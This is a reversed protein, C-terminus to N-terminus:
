NAGNSKEKLLNKIFHGFVDPPMGTIMSEIPKKPGRVLTAMAELTNDRSKELEEIDQNHLKVLREALARPMGVSVPESDVNSQGGDFLINCHVSIDEIKWKM